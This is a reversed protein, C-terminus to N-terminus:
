DYICPEPPIPIGIVFEINTTKCLRGISSVLVDRRRILDFMVQRDSKIRLDFLTDKLHQFTISAISEDLKELQYEVGTTGCYCNPALLRTIVSM